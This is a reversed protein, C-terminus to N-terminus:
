SNKEKGIVKTYEERELTTNSELIENNFNYTVVLDNLRSLCERMVELEDYGSCEVYLLTPTHTLTIEFFESTKTDNNSEFCINTVTLKVHKKIENPNLMLHM